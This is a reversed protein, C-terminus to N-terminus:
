RVLIVKRTSSHEKSRLKCLYVGAVAQQGSATKGDWRVEHEGVPLLEGEMLTRILQGKINYISMTTPGDDIKNFKIKTSGKFPNPYCTLNLKPDFPPPPDDNPTDFSVASLWIRWSSSPTACVVGALILINGDWAASSYTTFYYNEPLPARYLWTQTGDSNYNALTAQHDNNSRGYVIVDSGNNVLGSIYETIQTWNIQGSTDNIQRLKNVRNGLSDMYASRTYLNDCTKITKPGIEDAFKIQWQQQYNVDDNSSIILKTVRVSANWYQGDFCDDSLYISQGDQSFVRHGGNPDNYPVNTELQRIIEGTQWDLLILGNRDGRCILYDPASCLTWIQIPSGSLDKVWIDEGTEASVKRIISGNDVIVLNQDDSIVIQRSRINMYSSLNKQWGLEHTLKNMQVLRAQQNLQIAYFFINDGIIVMNGACQKGGGEFLDFIQSWIQQPPGGQAILPFVMAMWLILLLAVRTRM